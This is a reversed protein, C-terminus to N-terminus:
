AQTTRIKSLNWDVRGFTGHVQELLISMHRHAIGFSPDVVLGIGVCVSLATGAFAWHAAERRHGNLFRPWFDTLAGGCKSIMVTLSPLKENALGGHLLLM